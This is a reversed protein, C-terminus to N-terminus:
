VGPQGRGLSSVSPPPPLRDSYPPPAVSGPAQEGGQKDSDADLPFGNAAARTGAGNPGSANRDPSM